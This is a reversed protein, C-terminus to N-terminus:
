KKFPSREPPQQPSFNELMPRILVNLPSLRHRAWVQREDPVAGLRAKPELATGGFSISSCGFKLAQEVVAHLLRLYLPIEKAAERDFGLIYGIAKSDDRIVTVFGLLEEGRLVGLLAYDRPLASKLATLYTPSFTVPRVDANSWVSLYLQHLRQGYKDLNTLEEVRCGAKEVKKILARAAKRYKSQLSNLYDEYSTWDLLSLKMDPEVDVPRYGYDKLCEADRQGAPLDRMMVFDTEGSIKEARRVGLLVEAVSPWITAPDVGERVAVGRNGWCLLSGCVFIRSNMLRGGSSLASDQPLFASLDTDLVQMVVAGVPSSARYILAYKLKLNKPRNEELCKLYPRGFLTGSGAVVSDWHDSRLFEISDAFAYHDGTPTRRVQHRRYKEKLYSLPM